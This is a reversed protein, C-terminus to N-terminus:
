EYEPTVPPIDLRNLLTGARGEGWERIESTTSDSAFQISSLSSVEEGIAIEGTVM